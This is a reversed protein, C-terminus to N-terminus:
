PRQEPCRINLLRITEEMAPVTTTMLASLGVIPANRKEAEDCILQPDVDKGLDIVNFGFNELLAKVINKGIDHIDGKVTAIIIAEGPDGDSDTTSMAAKVKDFASQAAEASMLLQPLYITKDEFGKGVVNLAPIIHDNIVTLPESTKLLEEAAAGSGEKLGSIIASQLSTAPKDDKKEKKEADVPAAYAIYEAFGADRDHIAKWCHYAGMLEASFPNIIACSLGRELAAIFFTSNLKDRGPLGFSVNSVGLSTKLGLKETILRVAELTIDANKPDSSVTLALPDDIIDKNMIGYKAAENVISEAIRLRGEANDPIGSEDITLAIVAGGYKQVLPFVSDMSERKGNVSNVLPKGNYCRMAREMAGADTTDIQLPLNTVAQLEKVATSIM